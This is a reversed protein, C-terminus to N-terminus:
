YMIYCSSISVKLVNDDSNNRFYEECLIRNIITDVLTEVDNVDPMYVRNM